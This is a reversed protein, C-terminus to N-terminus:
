NLVNTLEICITKLTAVDNSRLSWIIAAVINRGPLTVDYCLRRCVRYMHELQEESHAEVSFMALERLLEISYQRGVAEAIRGEAEIEEWLEEDTLLGDITISVKRSAGHEARQAEVEEKTLAHGLQVLMRRCYVSLEQLEQTSGQALAESAEVVLARLYQMLGRYLRLSGQELGADIANVICVFTEDVQQIAEDYTFGFREDTLYWLASEGKVYLWSVRGMAEDYQRLVENKEIMKSVSRKAM